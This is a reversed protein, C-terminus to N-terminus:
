KFRYSFNLGYNPQWSKVGFDGYPTTVTGRAGGGGYSPTITANEGIPIDTSINAGGMIMKNGGQASVNLDLLKLLQALKKPDISKQYDAM